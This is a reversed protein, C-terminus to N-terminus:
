SAKYICQIPSDMRANQGGGNVPIGTTTTTAAAEAAMFSALAPGCTAFASTSGLSSSVHSGLLASLGRRRNMYWYRPSRGRGEDEFHKQLTAHMTGIGDVLGLSLAEGGLFAKGSFVDELAAERSDYTARWDPLPEAPHGDGSNASSFPPACAERVLRDGRLELILDKFDDHVDKLIEDIRSKSADSFDSFPDMLIKKEGAQRLRRDIGIKDMVGTFGFQGYLAGISGVMSSRTCYIEDAAAAIMYGGSAALDECFAITKVNYQKKLLSIRQSIMFSQPASGGPCNLALIVYDPSLRYAQELVSDMSELSLGRDMVAGALRVVACIATTKPKLFSNYVRAALM